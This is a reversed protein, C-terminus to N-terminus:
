FNFLSLFANMADNIQSTDCNEFSTMKCENDGAAWHMCIYSVKYGDKSKKDKSVAFDTSNDAAATADPKPKSRVRFRNASPAPAQDSSAVESRRNAAAVVNKRRVTPAADIDSSEETKKM